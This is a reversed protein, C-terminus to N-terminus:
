KDPYRTKAQAIVDDVINQWRQIVTYMFADYAERYIAYSATWGWFFTAGYKMGSIIAETTKSSWEYTKGKEPRTPGTPVGNVSSQGSARLFGTDVRMRGGKGVMSPSVPGQVFQRKKGRGTSGLGKAIAGAVSKKSPGVLQMENIANLLSQQMVLQMRKDTNAVARDVDAKFSYDRKGLEYQYRHPGYRAM